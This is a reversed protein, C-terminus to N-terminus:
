FTYTLDLAYSRYTKRIQSTVPGQKFVSDKALLNKVKLSTKLDNEWTKIGVIDIQGYPQEKIDPAGSTGVERIREGFQNYLLSISSKASPNDYGFTYNHIYSAQGQLPRKNSTQASANDGLDVESKIYTSNGALYFYRLWHNGQHLNVRFDAEIGKVYASKANSFSYLDDVAGYQIFLEIPDTFDKQFAGLSLSQNNKFYYEWRIDHSMISSARLNRNGRVSIGNDDDYYEAESLEKFDPRSITKSRSLRLQMDKAVAFTLSFVPLTHRTALDSSVPKADPNHLEYTRVGQQSKEHRIGSYFRFWGWLELDFAGYFAQIGQKATYNDTAITSEQLTYADSNIRDRTYIDDPYKSRDEVLVNGFNFRRVSSQRQRNTVQAGSLFTLRDKETIKISTKFDFADDWTHDTLEAFLRTPSETLVSDGAGLNYQYKRRDPANLQAQAYTHRYDFDMNYSGANLSHHLQSQNTFLQREQWSLTTKLYRYEPSNSNFQDEFQTYNETKRLLLTTNKIDTNRAIKLGTFLMNGFKVESRTAEINSDTDMALEGTKSSVVSYRTRRRQDYSYDQGYITALSLGLDINPTLPIKRGFSFNLGRAWPITQRKTNYIPEFATGMERIEDSTFGNPNAPNALEVKRNSAKSSIAKPLARTGDDYGTWDRDGGKYALGKKGSVGMTYTSSMGINFFPKDPMSKTKLLIVGGGFEGPMDPTYTKQITISELMSTPFLDLPVVKRAPHPSPLISNNLLIASYREGLGRVYVYKGDMLTLGTARRLAAGADSDGAKSIQEAALADTVNASNKRDQILSALSGSLNPATVVIEQLNITSLPALEITLDPHNEPSVQMKETTFSAHNKHILSFVYSGAPLFLSFTGDAKSVSSQSSRGASYIKVDALPKQTDGSTIKGKLEILDSKKVEDIANQQFAAAPPESIDISNEQEGSNIIIRTNLDRAVQFSRQENGISLDYRGAPLNLYVAGDSDTSFSRTGIRFKIGEQPQGNKFIYVDLQGILPAPVIQSESQGQSASSFLIMSVSLILFSCIFKMM